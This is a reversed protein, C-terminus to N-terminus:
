ESNSFSTLKRDKVFYENNSLKLNCLAVPGHCVAAIIGGKEYIKRM